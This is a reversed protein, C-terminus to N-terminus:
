WSKTWAANKSKAGKPDDLLTNFTDSYMEILAQILEDKGPIQEYISEIKEPSLTKHHMIFAGQFLLPIMTMPKSSIEDINFDYAQEMSQVAKRNYELKYEKGTEPEVITIQKSM